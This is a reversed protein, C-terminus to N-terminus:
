SRVMPILTSTAGPVGHSDIGTLVSDICLLHNWRRIRTKGELHVHVEYSAVRIELVRRVVSEKVCRRAEHGNLFYTGM